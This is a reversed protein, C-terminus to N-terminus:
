YLVDTITHLLSYRKTYYYLLLDVITYCLCLLICVCLFTMIRVVWLGVKPPTNPYDAPLFVDFEFCGNQYPTGMPGLYPSIYLLALPYLPPYFAILLLLLYIIISEITYHYLSCM